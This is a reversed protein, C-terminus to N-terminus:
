QLIMGDPWNMMYTLTIDQKAGAPLDFEWALLGRQGEPDTETAAPTAKYTIQLDKQESYPVQDVLRVPWAETGVNEVTLIAAETQENSTSFVGTQGSSRTPMDRKIRLTDIVGFGLKAEGGVPILSLQGNGILVGERFMLARGPLLVENGTNTFEAEIFVSRDRRPVAVARIEPTFDLQDLTLRLDEVGTAVEVKRPYIYVVTDGEITASAAVPAAMDAMAAPSAGGGGRLAMLELEPLPEAAKARTADEIRRMDPYLRSAEFQESPRSTSLTLDVGAWDEGTYQSVLVSRELSLAAGSTRTLNLEYFPQWGASDVFHTVTLRAPGAAAGEVSVALATYESDLAPLADFAARAFGEAEQADAYAKELPALTARVQASGALAAETESGVMQSIARLTDVSANEPLNGSLGALFAIQANSGHLQAQATELAAFAQRTVEQAAELATKATRQESSLPEPRPPLRDQRLAFAGFDASGDGAIRMLGSSTEQPLDTVLLEHQGASPLDFAVERTIRAGQPYVTVATIKSTARITDAMAPVALAALATSTLLAFPVRM